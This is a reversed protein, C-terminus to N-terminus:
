GTTIPTITFRATKELWQIVETQASLADQALKDANTTLNGGPVPITATFKGRVESLTAKANAVCLKRFNALYQRQGVAFDALAIDKAVVYFVDYPGSSCDVHLVRNTEDLYWDPDTGRTRQYLEYYSKLMVWEGLPMHPFVMRYMIEFINFNATIRNEEPYLMKVCAVGRETAPDLQIQVAGARGYAVRPEFRCLHNNFTLLADTIADDVQEQALEVKVSPSGLKRLVYNRMDDQTLTPM